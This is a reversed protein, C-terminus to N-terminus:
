AVRARYGEEEVARVLAEPAAQGEVRAQGPELSVEVRVVGPVRKLAEMVHRVCNQCSMGEIELVVM